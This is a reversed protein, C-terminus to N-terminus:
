DVEDKGNLCNNFGDCKELSSYCMSITSRNAEIFEEISYYCSFMFEACEFCGVEDEGVPCDAYGDCIRAKSLRNKCSCASEDSGDSCDVISDCWKSQLICQNEGYCSVEGDLQCRQQTESSQRNLGSFSAYIVDTSSHNGYDPQRMKFNQNAFQINQNNQSNQMYTCFMSQPNSQSIVSKSFINAINNQNGNATGSQGFSIPQSMSNFGQPVFFFGNGNSVFNNGFGFANANNYLNSQSSGMFNSNFLPNGLMRLNAPSAFFCIPITPTAYNPNFLFQASAKITEGTVPFGPGRSTFQVHPSPTFLENEPISTVKSRPAM